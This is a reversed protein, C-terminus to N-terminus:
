YHFTIINGSWIRKIEEVIDDQIPDEYKYNEKLFDKLESNEKLFFEMNSGGNELESVEISDWNDPTFYIGM